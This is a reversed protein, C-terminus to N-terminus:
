KMLLMKKTEVFGQGSSSEPDFTHLRYFYVGSPLNRVFGSHSNFEVEYEGPPKVENVLTAIESGLVDYVKLTVFRERNGEGQYPSPNIPSTPIQYRIKTTSNFPNPYNQQLSYKAPLNQYNYDVDVLLDSFFPLLHYEIREPIFNFHNGSYSMFIHPINKDTLASDFMVNADYLLDDATGCDFKIDIQLMNNHYQDILTYPDHELWKQWVSDILVGSCDVPLDCYFPHPNINPSWAAGSAINVQAQWPLGNFQSSDTACAAQVLYNFMKNLVVDEIVLNAASLAYVARYFDPHKMTLMMAGYGGM